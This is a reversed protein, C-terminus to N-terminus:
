RTRTFPRPMATKVDDATQQNNDGANSQRTFGGKTADVRTETADVRTETADVRTKTADVRTKTADVRTKSSTSTWCLEDLNIVTDM